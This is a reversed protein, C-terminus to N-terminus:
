FDRISANRNGYRKGIRGFHNDAGFSEHRIDRDPKGNNGRWQRHRWRRGDGEEVPEAVGAEALTRDAAATGTSGVASAVQHSIPVPGSLQNTMSPKGVAQVYLTYSGNPIPFSCLNVSEVGVNVNGMAMLNQGDLHQHLPRLSGGYEHRRPRDM